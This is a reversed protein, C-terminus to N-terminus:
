PPFPQSLSRCLTLQQPYTFSAGPSPFKSLSKRKSAEDMLGGHSEPLHHAHDMSNEAENGKSHDQQRELIVDSCTIADAKQKMESGEEKEAQLARTHPDLAFCLGCFTPFTLFEVYRKHDAAGNELAFSLDTRTNRTKNTERRVHRVGFKMNKYDRDPFRHMAFDQIIRHQVQLNYLVDRVQLLMNKFIFVNYLNHLLNLQLSAHKRRQLISMWPDAITRTAAFAVLM